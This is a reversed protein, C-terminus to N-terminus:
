FEANGQPWLKQAYKTLSESTLVAPYCMAEGSSLDAAKSYGDFPLCVAREKVQTPLSFLDRSVSDVTNVLEEEVGHNVVRFAGWQQAAEKVQSCLRQLDLDGEKLESRLASLDILPLEAEPFVM